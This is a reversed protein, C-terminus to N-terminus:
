GVLSCSWEIVVEKVRVVSLMLVHLEESLVM